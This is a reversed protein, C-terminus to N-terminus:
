IILTRIRADHLDCFACFIFGLYVSRTVRLYLSEVLCHQDPMEDINGTSFTRDRSRPGSRAISLSRANKVPSMSSIAARQNQPRHARTSVCSKARCRPPHQQNDCSDTFRAAVKTGCRCDHRVLSRGCFCMCWSRCGARSQRGIVVRRRRQCVAQIPLTSPHIPLRISPNISLCSSPRIGHRDLYGRM